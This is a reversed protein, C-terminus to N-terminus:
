ELHGHPQAESIYLFEMITQDSERNPLRLFYQSAQRIYALHARYVEVMKPSLLCLRDLFQLTQEGKVRLAGGAYGTWTMKTNANEKEYERIVKAKRCSGQM